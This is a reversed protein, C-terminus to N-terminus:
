LYNLEKMEKQCVAEISTKIIPDLTKKWNNSKGERFFSIKNGKEDTKAENFGETEELKKLKEFKIEQLIKPRTCTKIDSENGLTVKWYPPICGLDASIAAQLYGDYDM